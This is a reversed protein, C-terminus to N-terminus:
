QRVFKSRVMASGSGAELFYVGEALSSVDLEIWQTGSDRTITQIREGLVNFIRVPMGFSPSIRVSLIDSVPNPFIVLEQKQPDAQVAAVVDFIAAEVECGNADTAVVNYNGSQQAIYFYDTAGPILNGDQYWQYSVAGQNALLTDGSQAIGQPAPSPYVTIYNNLLLTDSTTSNTAILEVSYTGTTNYCINTPNQDVSTSPNAGQFSWLYSTANQSLNNFNTCTGPCIHNPATFLAVPVTQLFGPVVNPLGGNCQVPLAVALDNFTCAMGLQDPDDISALSFDMWKALYIKGDPALQLAASYGASTGILLASAAIAAGSGALLDFQYIHYGNGYESGYMINGNPSFEIGYAYMYDSSTSTFVLSAAGTSNDFDYLEFTGPDGNLAIGIHDSGQSAKMSGIQNYTATSHVLGNYSIVPITNVGSSSFQFAFISDANTSTSLIWLDTGNQQKAAAVREDCAGLLNVNKQVVDGLGGQLTIDVTSYNFGNTTGLEAATFIYYINANGPQKVILASQTSSYGGLLGFGNPMAVHNKNWVMVGDTYFLLDGNVDAISSCGEWQDMASGAFVVPSGSNFDLGAHSGFCWINSEKQSFGLRSQCFLIVIFLTIKKM